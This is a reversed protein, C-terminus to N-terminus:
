FLLHTFELKRRYPRTFHNRTYGSVIKTNEMRTEFDDSQRHHKLNSAEWACRDSWRSGAKGEVFQVEFHQSISRFTAKLKLHLRRTFLITHTITGCVFRVAFVLKLSIKYVYEKPDSSVVSHPYSVVIVELPLTPRPHFNHSMSFSGM